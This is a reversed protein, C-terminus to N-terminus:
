ATLDLRWDNCRMMHGQPFEFDVEGLLAFGAKRCVANSAGNGAAPFAHLLQHRGDARARQVLLAVAATAIGRGQHEPLVSWGCEWVQAGRWEKDWYGVWGVGSQDEPLVITFLGSSTDALYRQHRARLQEPTEPGGLHQTMAPDGLLRELLPLDGPRYPRLAVALGGPPKM